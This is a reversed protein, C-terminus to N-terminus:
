IQTRKQLRRAYKPVPHWCAQIGSMALMAGGAIVPDRMIKEGHLFRHFNLGLAGYPRPQKLGSDWALHLIIAPLM